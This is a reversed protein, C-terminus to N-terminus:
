RDTILMSEVRGMAIPIKALRDTDLHDTVAHTEFAISEHALDMTPLALFVVVGSEEAISQM